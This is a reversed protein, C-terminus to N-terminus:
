ECWSPSRVLRRDPLGDLHPNTRRSFRPTLREKPLACDRSRVSPGPRVQHSTGVLIPSAVSGAVGNICSLLISAMLRPVSASRMSRRSGANGRLASSAVTRVEVGAPHVTTTVSWSASGTWVTPGLVSDASDIM